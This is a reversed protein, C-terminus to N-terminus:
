ACNCKKTRHLRVQQKNCNFGRRFLEMALASHGWREDQMARILNEIDEDELQEVANRMFACIKEKEPPELGDLIPM